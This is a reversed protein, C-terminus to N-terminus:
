KKKTKKEESDEKRTLSDKKMYDWPNFNKEFEKRERPTMNIYNRVDEENGRIVKKAVEDSKKQGIAQGIRALVRGSVYGVGAGILKPNKKGHKEAMDKAIKYGAVSGIIRGPARWKTEDLYKKKNAMIGGVNYLYGAKNYDEVSLGKKKAEKSLEEAVRDTEKDFEEKLQRRSKSFNSQRLIIM